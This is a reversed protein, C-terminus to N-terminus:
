NGTKADNYLKFLEETNEAIAVWDKEEDPFTLWQGTQADRRYAHDGVWNIFDFDNM